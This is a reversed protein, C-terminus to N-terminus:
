PNFNHYNDTEVKNILYYPKIEKFIIEVLFYLKLNDSLFLLFFM